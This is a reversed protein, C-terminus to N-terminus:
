SACSECEDITLARSRIYYTSKIGSKWADIHLALFASAKIDPTVYLNFSQAQDIHRQRAGAAKISWHQDITFATKYYPFTKASLDPVPNAIKYTTKEEYTLQEYIPDISATSGTIISTSANPAIAMLYGNRMGHQLVRVTLQAWKDDEKIGSGFEDIYGRKVFYEGSHWDSGEFAPYAGKEFALDASAKIALYNIEEYLEDNYKVAEESEWRIGELALLHHLGFTGLGVARYQQNTYQAQLVEISNIDIVNDLMRVQIPILRDLVNDPVARALNISNLNCVVFDGPVKTVVIRTQGDKTVLEESEVVTPSQNQM